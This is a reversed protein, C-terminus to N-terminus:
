IVRDLLGEGNAFRRLNELFHQVSHLDEDQHGGAIHPTIHCNDLELLPHEPPLPEPESVDLWASSLKGSRLAAELAEQDVTAGRGINYFAAGRKIQALRAADFFGHTSKSYPLINLVHDACALADALDRSDIVPVAEHGRARRRYACLKMHYPALLEVLREAIAGYGLLVASQGRLPASGQRLERWQASTNPAQTRLATPLLRSQALMFALAHDACAENYVSASNCVPLGRKRMEVRFGDTDYRTYGSTNVQIWKLKSAKAIADLHPQGFAIDAEFFGSDPSAGQLLVSAAPESQYIIRHAKAGSELLAKAKASLIFDVYITLAM